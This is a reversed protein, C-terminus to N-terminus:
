SAKEFAEIFRPVLKDRVADPAHEAVYRGAAEAAGEALPVGAQSASALAGSGVSKVKSEAAALRRSADTGSVQPDGDGDYEEDDNDEAANESADDSADHDDGDTRGDDTEEENEDMPDEPEDRQSVPSDDEAEGNSHGDGDRSLARRVAYTAAGAAAVGVLARAASGTFNGAGAREQEDQENM